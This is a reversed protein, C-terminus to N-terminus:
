PSSRSRCGTGASGSSSPSAPSAPSGSCRSRRPRPRLAPSSRPSCRASSASRASGAHSGACPSRLPWHVPASRSVCARRRGAARRLRSRRGRRHRLPRLDRRRVRRARRGLPPPAGAALHRRRDARALLLRGAAHPRGRRDLRQLRRDRAAARHRRPRRPRRGLGARPRRASGRPQSATASPPSAAVTVAAGPETEPQPPAWTAPAGRAGAAAHLARAALGTHAELAALARADVLADHAGPGGAAAIPTVSTM